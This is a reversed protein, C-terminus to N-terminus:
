MEWDKSYMMGYGKIFTYYKEPNTEKLELLDFVKLSAEIMLKKMEENTIRSYKDSDLLESYEGVHLDELFGNRFCFATIANAEDRLTFGGQFFGKLLEDLAGMDINKPIEKQPM